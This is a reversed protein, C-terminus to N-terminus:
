PKQKIKAHDFYGEFKRKVLIMFGGLLGGGIILGIWWTFDRWGSLGALSAIIVFFVIWNFKPGFPLVEVECREKRM